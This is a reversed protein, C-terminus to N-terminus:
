KINITSAGAKLLVDIKKGATEYDRSYFYDGREEYGPLTKTTLGSETKLRVGVGQPIELDITSAGAEITVEAGAEIKQGLKLKISSAGASINIRSIVNESLDFNLSSAGSAVKIVLPLTDNLSLKLNNKIGGLWVMHNMRPDTSLEVLQREGSIVSSKVPQSVNTELTGDIISESRGSISFDVAGTKIDIEASKAASDRPVSVENTVLDRVGRFSLQSNLYSRDAYSVDYIVLGAVVTLLVMLVWGFKLSKVMLDFGWFIFILPWWLWLRGVQDASIYGLSAALNAGGVAVLALGWFYRM